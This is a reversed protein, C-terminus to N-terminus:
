RMWRKGSAQKWGHGETTPSIVPLGV